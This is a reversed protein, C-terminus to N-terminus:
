LHNVTLSLNVTSPLLLINDRFTSIRSSLSMTDHGLIIAHDHLHKFLLESLFKLTVFCLVNASTALVCVASLSSLRHVAVFCSLTQRRQPTCNCGSLPGARHLNVINM